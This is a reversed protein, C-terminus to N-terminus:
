QLGEERAADIVAKARLIDPLAMPLHESVTVGVETLLRILAYIIEHQAEAAELLTMGKRAPHGNTNYVARSETM